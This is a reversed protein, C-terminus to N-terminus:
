VSTVCEQALAHQTIPGVTGMNCHHYLMNRLTEDAVYHVFIPIGKVGGSGTRRFYHSLRQRHRCSDANNCGKRPTPPGNSRDPAPKSTDAGRFDPRSLTLPTFPIGMQVFLSREVSLLIVGSPIPPDRQNSHSRWQPFPVLDPNHPAIWQPSREPDQSRAFSAWEFTTTHSIAV